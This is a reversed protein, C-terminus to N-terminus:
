LDEVADRLAVECRQAALGRQADSMRLIAAPHTIALQRVGAPLKLSHKYKQDLYDEAEKGVAVILRPKAVEWVFEELRPQCALVDAHEPQGAKGGDGDRPICCILNTFAVRLNRRGNLPKADYQHFRESQPPYEEIARGIIRDLLQGAPGVFPAGLVDESEGPAEGIFLVDCPLKGRALVVQQRTECLPCATCSRWREVHLAFRSRSHNM